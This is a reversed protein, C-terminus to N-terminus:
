APPAGERQGVIRAPVGYVISYAPLDKTVVTGAGIVCGDGITVGAMVKVGAGLWCDRGIRTAQVVDPQTRIFVGAPPVAHNSSVICCHMAILTCEGIEVGGHGYIVVYPGLFVSPHLNINGGFAWLVCGQEIWCGPSIRIRGKADAPHLAQHYGSGLNFDVGAGLRADACCEVGRRRSCWVRWFRQLKFWQNMIM